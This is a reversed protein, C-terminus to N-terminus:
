NDYICITQRNIFEVNLKLASNISRGTCASVEKRGEEGTRNSPTFRLISRKSLRALLSDALTCLIMKVVSPFSCVLYHFTLNSLEAPEMGLDKFTKASPDITQDIFEREVEDASIIPWWLARNLLGAAPKFIRKPVNFHRRHKMIEKDVLAAIEATSYNKPGYLEYTQAATNDDNLMIELAQGVDIAQFRTLLMRFHPLIIKRTCAM